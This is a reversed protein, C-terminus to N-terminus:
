AAAALRDLDCGCDILQWRMGAPLAAGIIRGYREGLSTGSVAGAVGLVLFGDDGRHAHVSEVLQVSMPSEPLSRAANVVADALRQEEVTPAAATSTAWAVLDRRWEGVAKRHKALDSRREGAPAAPPTLSPRSLLGNEPSALDRSTPEGARPPQPTTTRKNQRTRNVHNRTVSRSEDRPTVPETSAPDDARAPSEAAERDRQAAKRVAAQGRENDKRWGSIRATFRGDARTFDDLAGLAVARSLVHGVTVAEVFCGRSCSLVGAKVWGGDNQAKAECSLWDLVAPGDPGFEVGLAVVHERRWWASDKPWWSTRGDSM